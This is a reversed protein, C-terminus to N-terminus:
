IFLCERVIWIEICQRELIAGGIIDTLSGGSGRKERGPDTEVPVHEAVPGQLQSTPCTHEVPRRRKDPDAVLRAIVSCLEARDVISRGIGRSYSEVDIRVSVPWRGSSGVSGISKRQGIM